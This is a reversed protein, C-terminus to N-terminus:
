YKIFKNYLFYYISNYYQSLLYKTKNNNNM